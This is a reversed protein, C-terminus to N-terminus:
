SANSHIIAKKLRDRWSPISEQYASIFQKLDRIKREALGNGAPHYPTTLIRRISKSSCWNDFERSAFCPGNDSIVVKLNRFHPHASLFSIVAAATERAPLADCYRTAEDIAVLFSHTTKQGEKKKSLEAFDLHVTHFPIQSQSPLLLSDPKPKYKVKLQQCTPCSRVYEKVTKNLDPWSFRQKIRFLTRKFGDHGGSEPDDHYLQLIQKIKSSPIPMEQLFGGVTFTEILDVDLCLRSIADADTLKCGPRHNVQLDFGQLFIQWRAIRNRPEKMTLIHTIAQHDTFVTFHRGDLFSRFYKISKIVALIEKETVTYNQETKTFTYPQFGIVRLRQSAPKSSDSQYLISGTGFYSADTCLEFPLRWDPVSLIPNSTILQILQQYSQECEDTWVFPVDKQKLRDLPRVISAYDKIFARFHGTLGTFCRLTHVDVPLKMNRVKDVSEEKTTKTQGDLRRGLIVVNPVCFECKELNVRLDATQLRKLVQITTQWCENETFGATIIDDIYVEVVGPKLVDELIKQMCRQFHQPSNKWGQPLRQFEYHGFPLVFATFRRTDPSLGIQWFGDRLDIKSFFRKGGFGNIVDDIRPFPFPDLITEQNLDRYDQTFRFKGDNKRVIVCPSAYPSSSHVIIGTALLEKIKEKAWSLKDVHLNYPKRQVIKADPKLEFRVTNTPKACPTPQCITPFLMQVENSYSLSEGSLYVPLCTGEPSVTYVRQTSFDWNVKLQGLVEISLLLQHREDNSIIAETTASIGNLQLVLHTALSHKQINGGYSVLRIDTPHTPLSLHSVLGSSIVTRKAGSDFIAHVDNGNVDIIFTNTPSDDNLVTNCEDPTLEPDDSEFEDHDYIPSEVEIQHAKAPKSRTPPSTNKKFPKKPRNADTKNHTSLPPLKALLAKLEQRNTPLQLTATQRLNGPLGQVVMCILDRESFKQYGMSILRVKEYYYEMLSGEKYHYFMARSIADVPNAAFSSLFDTRWETWDAQQQEIAEMSLRKQYWKQALNLLYQAMHDIMESDGYIENARCSREFIAIWSQACDRAPDFPSPKLPSQINRPRHQLELTAMRQEISASMASANSNLPPVDNLQDLAQLDFEFDDNCYDHMVEEPVSQLTLNKARRLNEIADLIAPLRFLQAHYRQHQVEKPIEHINQADFGFKTLFIAGQSRSITIHATTPAPM